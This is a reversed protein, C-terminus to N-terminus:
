RQGHFTKTFGNSNNINDDRRSHRRGTMTPRSPPTFVLLFVRMYEALRGPLLLYRTGPYFGGRNTVCKPNGPLNGVVIVDDKHADANYRAARATWVMMIEKKEEPKLPKEAFRRRSALGTRRGAM